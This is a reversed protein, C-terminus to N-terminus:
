QSIELLLTNLYEKDELLCCLSGLIIKSYWDPNVSKVEALRERLRNLDRGLQPNKRWEHLAKEMKQMGNPGGVIGDHMSKIQGHLTKIGAAGGNLFQGFYRLGLLLPSTSQWLEFIPINDTKLMTATEVYGFLSLEWYRNFLRVQDVCYGAMDSNLEAFLMMPLWYQYNRFIFGSPDDWDFSTISLLFEAANLRNANEVVRQIDVYDLENTVFLQELREPDKHVQLFAIEKDTLNSDDANPNSIYKGASLRQKGRMLFLIYGPDALVDFTGCIRAVKWDPDDPDESWSIIANYREAWAPLTAELPAIVPIKEADQRTVPLLAIYPQQEFSEPSMKHQIILDQKQQEVKPQKSAYQVLPTFALDNEAFGGGATALRVTMKSCKALYKFNFIEGLAEEANRLSFSLMESRSFKGGLCRVGLEGKPIFGLSAGDGEQGFVVVEGNDYLDDVNLPACGGDSLVMIREGIRAYAGERHVLSKITIVWSNKFVLKTEFETQQPAISYNEDEAIEASSFNIEGVIGVPIRDMLNTEFGKPLVSFHRTGLRRGQGQSVILECNGYEDYEPFTKSLHIRNGQLKDASATLEKGSHINKLTVYDIGVVGKVEIIPLSYYTRKGPVFSVLRSDQVFDIQLSSPDRVPFAQYVTGNEDLILLEQVDPCRFESDSIWSGESIQIQLGEEWNSTKWIRYSEGKILRRTTSGVLAGNSDFLCAVGNAVEPTLDVESVNDGDRYRMSINLDNREPVSCEVNKEAYLRWTDGDPRYRYSAKGVKIVIDTELEVRYPIGNSPFIVALDNNPSLHLRPLIWSPQPKLNKDSFVKLVEKAIPQVVDLAEALEDTHQENLAGNSEFFSLVSWVDWIPQFDLQSQNRPIKSVPLRKACQVADKLSDWEQEQFATSKSFHLYERAYDRIFFGSQRGIGTIFLRGYDSSPVFFNFVRELGDALWTYHNNGEQIPYPVRLNYLIWDSWSKEPESKGLQTVAYVYAFAYIQEYMDRKTHGTTSQAEHVWQEFFDPYDDAAPPVTPFTFKKLLDGKMWGNASEANRLLEQAYRHM